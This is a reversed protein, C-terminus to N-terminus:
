RRRPYSLRSVAGARRLRCSDMLRCVLCARGAAHEQRASTRRIRTSWYGRPFWGVPLHGIVKMEKTDIVGGCERGSRGGAAMRDGCSVCASRLVGRLNELGPIRDPEVTVQNTKADIVSPIASMSSIRDATALARRSSGGHSGRGFPPRHSLAMRPGRSKGPQGCGAFEIEECQTVWARFRIKGKATARRAGEAAEPSPFGFAPFPLGTERAQKRDAGPIPKYEFMGINTVYARRKDTSLALSFPLPGLRLSAVLRRRSVDITVLRFNAQDLAYLLKREPDFALDGTFSDSYGERNLDIFGKRTEDSPNLIRIRGSNGESCYLTHEGNFRL